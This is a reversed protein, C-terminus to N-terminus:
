KRSDNPELRSGFVNLVQNLKDIRLTQKGQECDRIFRLGVGAVISLEKQTLNNEKRKRKIYKSLM